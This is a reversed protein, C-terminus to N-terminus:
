IGNKQIKLDQLTVRIFFGGLVTDVIDFRIKSFGELIGGARGVSPIWRWSFQNV